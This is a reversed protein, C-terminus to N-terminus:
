VINLLLLEGDVYAVVDACGSTIVRYDCCFPIVDKAPSVVVDVVSRGVGLADAIAFGLNLGSGKYDLEIIM